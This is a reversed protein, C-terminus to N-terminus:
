GSTSVTESKRVNADGEKRVIERVREVLEKPVYINKNKREKDKFKHIM